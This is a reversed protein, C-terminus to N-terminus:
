QMIKWLFSQLGVKADGQLDRRTVRICVFVCKGRCYTVKEAFVIILIWGTGGTFLLLDPKSVVEGLRESLLEFWGWCGGLLENEM